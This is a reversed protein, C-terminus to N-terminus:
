GSVLAGSLLLDAMNTGYVGQHQMPEVALQVYHFFEAACSVLGNEM